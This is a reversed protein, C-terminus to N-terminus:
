RRRLGTTSGYLFNRNRRRELDVCEADEVVAKRMRCQLIMDVWCLYMGEKKWADVHLSVDERLESEVSGRTDFKSPGFEKPSNRLRIVGRVRGIQADLIAEVNM